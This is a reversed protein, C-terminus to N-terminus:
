RGQTMQGTSQMQLIEAQQQEPTLMEWRRRAAEAARLQDELPSQEGPFAGFMNALNFAPTFPAIAGWYPSMTMPQYESFMKDMMQGGSPKWAYGTPASRLKGATETKAQQKAREIFAKKEENALRLREVEENIRNINAQDMASPTQKALENLGYQVRQANLDSAERIGQLELEFDRRRSAMAVDHAKQDLRWAQNLTDRWRQMDTEFDRSKESEEARFAMESAHRQEASVQEAKRQALMAERYSRTHAANLGKQYAVLGRSVGAGLREAPDGRGMMAAGAAMLAMNLNRQREDESLLNAM